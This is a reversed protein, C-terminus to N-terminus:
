DFLCNSLHSCALKRWGLFDYPKDELAAKMAELDDLYKSSCGHPNSPTTSNLLAGAEKWLVDDINKFTQEFM